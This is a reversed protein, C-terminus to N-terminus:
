TTNESSAALKWADTKVCALGSLTPTHTAWQQIPPKKGGCPDLQPANALETSLGTISAAPIRRVFLVSPILTFTIHWEM